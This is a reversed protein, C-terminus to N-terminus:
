RLKKWSLGELLSDFGLGTGETYNWVPRAEGLAESFVHSTFLEQTMLGCTDVIGMYEEACRGAEYAAFAQGLPHDMYSTFVARRAASRTKNMLRDVANKAPKIVSYGYLGDTDEVGIDMALRIGYLNRVGLWCSDKYGCPDELFEIQERATASLHEVFDGVERGQLNCNFDLRMALSPFAEAVTNVLAIERETDRGAKLKITSFGREVALKVEDIGGIITAHSDPVLLGQLLSRGEMRAEGDIRACEMARYTLRTARGQQLESLQVDM